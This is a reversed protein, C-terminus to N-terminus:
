SIVKSLRLRYVENKTRQYMKLVYLDPEYKLTMPDLDIDRSCFHSIGVYDFVCV